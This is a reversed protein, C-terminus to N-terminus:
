RLAKRSSAFHRRNDPNGPFGDKGSLFCKQLTEPSSSSCSVFTEQIGGEMSRFVKELIFLGLNKAQGCGIGKAEDFIMGKDIAILTDSKHRTIDKQSDVATM